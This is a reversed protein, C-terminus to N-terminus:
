QSMVKKCYLCKNENNVKNKILCEYCIVLKCNNHTVTHCIKSEYCIECDVNDWYETITNSVDYPKQYNGGNVIQM